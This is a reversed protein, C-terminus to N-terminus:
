LHHKQQIIKQAQAFRRVSKTKWPLKYFFSPLWRSITGGTDIIQFLIEPIWAGVYGKELMTLWLDWDQLKKINEDFGPFHARRILSSTHIYPMQKLKEADFPWLRFTKWGFKFSSYAYSAQPNNQLAQFMKKLCDPRLVADADCFFLYEGKSRAFGHNRAAPAGQNTQNIIQIKGPWKEGAKELQQATADTSGDNVVIIEFDQQTQAFISELCKLITKTANFAPIIISIQPM